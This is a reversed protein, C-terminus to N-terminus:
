EDEFEFPALLNEMEELEEDYLDDYVPFEDYRDKKSLISLNNNINNKNNYNNNHENLYDVDYLDNTSNYKNYKHWIDDTLYVKRKSKIGSKWMYRCIIYGYAELKKISKSVTDEKIGYMDAITGNTVWAYGKNKCLATIREAILKDTPTLDKTKYISSPMITYLNIYDEM